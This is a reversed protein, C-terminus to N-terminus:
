KESLYSFDPFSKWRAQTLSVTLFEAKRDQTKPIGGTACFGPPIEKQLEGM